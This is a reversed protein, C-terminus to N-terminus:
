EACHSLYIMTIWFGCGSRAFPRGADSIQVGLENASERAAHISLYPNDGVYSFFPTLSIVTKSVDREFKLKFWEQTEMYEVTFDGSDNRISPTTGDFHVEGYTRIHGGHSNDKESEHALAFRGAALIAAGATGAAIMSRRSLGEM